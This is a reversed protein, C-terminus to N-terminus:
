RILLMKRIKVFGDANLRYYYIGSALGSADFIMRHLGEAQRGNVLTKVKQGLTNYISLEVRSGKSLKYAIETSPNFPNPHNQYLQIQKPLHESISGKIASVSNAMNVRATAMVEKTADNQIFVVLDSNKKVVGSPFTFRVTDTFAMGAYPATSGSYFPNGNYDPYMERALFQLSDMCGEWSYAIHSEILCYRIKYTTIYSPVKYTISSVATINDSGDEFFKIGIGFGTKESRGQEYLNKYSDYLSSWDDDCAAGGTKEDIGNFEVTPFGTIGYYDIRAQTMDTKFPDNDSYGHYEIVSLSDNEEDYLKDTARSAGPCYTCETSTAKEELVMRKTDSFSNIAKSVEDNDSHTDGSLDTKIFFNYEYSDSFTYNNFTIQQTAGPALNTVTKTDLIVASGDWNYYGFHVDFTASASGGNQVTGKPQVTTNVDYHSNMDLSVAVADNADTEYVGVDDIYWYDAYSGKYRFAIYVTSNGAFDALYITVPDNGFGNITHDSPKMVLVDQFTSIDTQSTTSVKIDHEEGSSAWYHQDEYFVLKANTLGSLDIAPTVLWEDQAKWPYDPSIYASYTGSEALSSSQAWSKSSSGKSLKQWGNPPVGNEFSEFLLTSETTNTIKNAKFVREKESANRIEAAFITSVSFLLIILLSLTKM